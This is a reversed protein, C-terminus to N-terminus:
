KKFFNNDILNNHEIKLFLKKGDSFIISMTNDDMSVGDCLYDENKLLKNVDDKIELYTSDDKIKWQYKEVLTIIEKEM